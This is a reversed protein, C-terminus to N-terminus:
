AHRQSGLLSETKPSCGPLVACRRLAEGRSWRQPWTTTYSTTWTARWQVCSPPSPRSSLHSSWHTTCPPPSPIHRGSGTPPHLPGAINWVSFNCSPGRPAPPPCAAQMVCRLNLVGETHCCTRRCIHCCPRWGGPLPEFLFKKYYEKKPAHCMLVCSRPLHNTAPLWCPQPVEVLEFLMCFADTTYRMTAARGGPPAGM